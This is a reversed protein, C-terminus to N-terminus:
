NNRKSRLYNVFNMIEVKEEKSFESLNLSNDNLCNIYLQYLEECTCDKFFYIPEINFFSCITKTTDTSIGTSNRRFWSDITTRKTGMYDALEKRTKKTTSFLFELKDLFTAIEKNAM